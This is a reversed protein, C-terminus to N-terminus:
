PEIKALEIKIQSFVSLSRMECSKRLVEVYLVILAVKSSATANLHAIQTLRTDSLVQAVTM